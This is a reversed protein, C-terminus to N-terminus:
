ARRARRDIQLRAARKTPYRISFGSGEDILYGSKGKVFTRMAEGLDDRLPNVRVAEDELRGPREFLPGTVATEDLKAVNHIDHASRASTGSLREREDLYKCTVARYGM